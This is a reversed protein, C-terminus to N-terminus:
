QPKEVKTGAQKSLFQQIRAKAEPASQAIAATLSEILLGQDQGVEAIRPLVHTLAFNTMPANAAIKRALELAKALGEGTGVLYQSLGIQQGEEASYARGTLMMDAMRAFGILRPVRASAGGGVFIGRQGEPLAYFASPEAVRIHAAAALELGGGVVAGHLVCIVPVPGFQIEDVAKHWMRSHKVGEVVDLEKLASLDLGACFHEGTGDLVVARVEKPLSSFFHGIGVITPDDIANRKQPRNLRLIAIDGDREQSLSNPLRGYEM